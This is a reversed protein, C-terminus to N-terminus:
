WRYSLKAVVTRRNGYTCFTDGDCQSVYTKDFVNKVNVSVLAGTLKQSAKGLDYQLRADFLTVAPM